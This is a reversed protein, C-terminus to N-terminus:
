AEDTRLRHAVLLEVAADVASTRVTLRELGPLAALGVAALVVEVEVLVL